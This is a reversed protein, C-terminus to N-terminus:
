NRFSVLAQFYCLSMEIFFEFLNTGIEELLHTNLFFYNNTLNLCTHM